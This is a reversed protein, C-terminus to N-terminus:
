LKQISVLNNFIISESKKMKLNVIFWNGINNNLEDFIFNIETSNLWPNFNSAAFCKIFKDVNKQDELQLTIWNPNKTDLHSNLLRVLNFYILFM